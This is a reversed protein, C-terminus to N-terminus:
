TKGEHAPSNIRVHAKSLYLCTMLNMNIITACQHPSFFAPTFIFQAVDLVKGLLRSFQAGQVGERRRTEDMM